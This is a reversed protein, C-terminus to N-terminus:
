VTGIGSSGSQAYALEARIKRLDGDTWLGGNRTRLKDVDGGAAALQEAYREHRTAKRASM